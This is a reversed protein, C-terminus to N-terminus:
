ELSQEAVVQNNNYEKVDARIGKVTYHISVAEILVFAVILIGKVIKKAKM